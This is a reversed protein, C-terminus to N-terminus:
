ELPERRRPTAMQQLHENYARLEADEDNDAKRDYRKAIREDTRVWQRVVMLAILVTPFEGAGWAIAGGTHQDNLLEQYNTKGLAHWWDVALIDTGSMLALGFFAHFALTAMLLILRLPYPPRKPGPDVGILVFFFVYGALLFHIEMILHGPHTQLSAQFWGTWYFAVLSGAFIVAAVVPNTIFTAYRSHTLILLWERPGRSNDRRKPLTRLALLIPAGLVLLPPVYMMLVMHQIMHTSFNVAGYVSPGGSTAFFLGFCGFLWPVTRGWSWTDGRRRLKVVGVIYLGAMILAIAIFMYDPHFGFLFRELTVPKPYPFGILGSRTDADATQPVPPASKSLAVSLGMAISMFVVESVALRVFARSRTPERVLRPIISRRQLYGAVGLGILILSKVTILLGYNTTFLDAPGTLRLSANIVGSFAVFAFAWIALTSYRSVVTALHKGAKKRLLIVAILGGMWVTVGVLHMALSNVANVHEDTGASHGSLSLPLLAFLAFVAATALWSVNKTSLLIVLAVAICGITVLWTQGIELQFAVFFFQSRFTTTTFGVSLSTAAQFMLSAVASVLWVLGSWVAWKTAYWQSFSASRPDKKQGPLVVASLVLLGITVAASGDFVASVMPFGRTVVLGPDSLLQAFAGTFFMALLALVVGVPICAMLVIVAVSPGGSSGEPRSPRPSPLKMQKTEFHLDEIQDTM